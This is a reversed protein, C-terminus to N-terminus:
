IYNETFGEIQHLDPHYTKVLIANLYHPSENGDGVKVFLRKWNRRLIWHPNSRSVYWRQGDPVSAPLYGKEKMARTIAAKAANTTTGTIEECTVVKQGNMIVNYM